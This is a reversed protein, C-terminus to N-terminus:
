KRSKYHKHVKYAFVTPAAIYMGLNLAIVSIGLTLVDAESGADALSMISLSSILPTIALRVAEKFVPNQREWEAVTPAFTYYYANFSEMFASGAATSLLTHDRVERLFQVQPALESGYAATAILCQSDPKPEEVVCIGDRLVTGPGCIPEEVTPEKDICQGNVLEQNPGCSTPPPPPPPPVDADVCQGNVLQQGPPCTATPPPPPPEFGSSTFSFTATSKQTGYQASVEYDGTTNMTGGAMVNHSFGGNAGVTLQAIAAINGTPGTIILTVPTNPFSESLTGVNGTIRITDGEDYSPQDINLTFAQPGSDVIDQCQNNQFVQNPGCDEPSQQAHILGSFGFSLISISLVIIALNGFRRM